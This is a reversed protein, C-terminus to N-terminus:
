KVMSTKTEEGTNTQGAKREQSGQLSIPGIYSTDETIPNKRSKVLLFFPCKKLNGHICNEVQWDQKTLSHKIRVQIVHTQESVMQTISFGEHQDSM